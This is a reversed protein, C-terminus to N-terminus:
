RGFMMVMLIALVLVVPVWLLNHRLKGTHFRQVSRSLTLAARVVRRLIGDLGELEIVHYTISAGNAVAQASRNLVGELVGHEVFWVIRAGGMAAQRIWSVTRELIAVEIFAHMSAAVRALGKESDWTRFDAERAVTPWVARRRLRWVVVALVAAVPLAPLSSLLAQPTPTVPAASHTLHAAFDVLSGFALGSALIVIALVGLAIWRGWRSEPTTRSQSVARSQLIARSELIAGVAWAGLSAAAVQAIFLAAIPLHDRAWWLTVLNFATLALGGLAFLAAAVRRPVTYVAQRATEATLFLLLRLPTLVLLGLWVALKIGAAGLVLALGAQAAGATVMARRPEPRAMTLVATVLAGAAGIWLATTQLLGAHTLLPAVRYLLYLGLNPMVTAYLWAHSALSLRHGTRSWLHFPWGGLKVWVALALGAVAWGLPTPPLGKGAELAADIHLTGGAHWLILIAVLLGVDGLRLLLYGGRASRNTAPPSGEAIPALLVCLAVIELAVYRLLFHDALLAVNAGALALLLVGAVLPHVPVFLLVLSLGAATALAAYLGSGAPALGMPGAGPLWAITILPDDGAHSLLPIACVATLAAAVTALRRAALARRQLLTVVAGAVLPLGVVGILLGRM